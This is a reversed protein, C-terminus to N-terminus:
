QHQHEDYNAQGKNASKLFPCEPNQAPGCSLMMIVKDQGDVLRGYQQVYSDFARPKQTAFKKFYDEGLLPKLMAALFVILRIM